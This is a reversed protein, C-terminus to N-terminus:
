RGGDVGRALTIRVHCRQAEALLDLLVAGAGAEGVGAAIRAGTGIKGGGVGDEADM